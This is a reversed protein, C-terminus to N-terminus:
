KYVHGVGSKCLSKLVEVLEDISSFTVVGRRKAAVTGGRVFIYPVGCIKAESIVHGWSETYSPLVVAVASKYFRWLDRRPLAGFYTFNPLRNALEVLYRLPGDGIVAFHCERVKTALKIFDGIGKEGSLRGVYVVYSRDLEVHPCYFYPTWPLAFKCRGRLRKYVDASLTIVNKGFAWSLFEFLRAFHRMLSALKAGRTFWTNWYTAEVWDGQFFYTSSRFLSFFWFFGVVIVEDSRIAYSILVPLHRFFGDRLCVVGRGGGRCIGVVLDVRGMYREIERRFSDIDGFLRSTVLIRM